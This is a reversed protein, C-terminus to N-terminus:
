KIIKRLFLKWFTKLGVIFNQGKSLSYDTYVASIPIEKLDLKHAKIEKIIESSVEMKSTKLDLSQAAQRSFARLGSQSDTVWIGFLIFTVLNALWNYVRRHFPMGRPDLLRSGIVVQAERKKIPEILRFIDEARHQGDADFTLIIEGGDKLAKKVGTTISAGLGLNIIHHLVQAGSERAIEGTRDISGDDVVIIEDSHEKVEKIVSKITREENYAPIVVIIKMGFKDVWDKRFNLYSLV